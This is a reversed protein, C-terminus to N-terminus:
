IPSPGRFGANIMNKLIGNPFINCDDFSVYPPPCETSAYRIM